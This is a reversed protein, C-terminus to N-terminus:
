NYLIVYCLIIYYLMLVLGIYIHIYKHICIYTRTCIYIYIHVCVCTKISQCVYTALLGTRGLREQVSESRHIYMYMYIYIYVFISIYVYVYIYIYMYLSLSMHNYYLNHIFQWVLSNIYRYVFSACACRKGGAVHWCICLLYVFMYM